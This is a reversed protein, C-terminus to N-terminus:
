GRARSLITITEVHSLFLVKIDIGGDTRPFQEFGFILM